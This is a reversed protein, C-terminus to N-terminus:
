GWFRGVFGLALLELESSGRLLLLTLLTLMTGSCCGLVMDRAAVKGRMVCGGEGEEREGRGGM